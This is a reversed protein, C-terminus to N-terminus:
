TAALGGGEAQDCAKFVGVAAGDLDRAFGHDALAGVFAVHPEEELVVGKEGVHGDGLVDAVSELVAVPGFGLDGGAGLFHEVEDLECAKAGPPGLLEAAALLM